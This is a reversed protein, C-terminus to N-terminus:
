QPHGIWYGNEFAEYLAEADDRAEAVQDYMGLAVRFHGVAQVVFSHYGAENWRGVEEAAPERDPYSAIYITYRSTPIPSSTQSQETLSSPEGSNQSGQPVVNALPKSSPGQSAQQAGQNRPNMPFFLYVLFVISALVILIFFTMVVFKTTVTKQVPMHGIPQVKPKEPRVVEEKDQDNVNLPM